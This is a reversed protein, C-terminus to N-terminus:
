KREDRFRRIVKHSPRELKAKRSIEEMISLAWKIREEKIRDEIARRIVESWNVEKLKEMEKKLEIPVRVTIKASMMTMDCNYM